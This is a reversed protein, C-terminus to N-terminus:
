GDFPKKEVCPDVNTLAVLVYTSCFSTHVYQLIMIDLDTEKNVILSLKKEAFGVM